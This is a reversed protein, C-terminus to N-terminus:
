RNMPPRKYLIDGPVLVEGCESCTVQPKMQKGCDVHVLIHPKGRKDALWKDGWMMMGVAVGFIQRGKETLRYEYRPPKECYLAKRFIECEVLSTLRNSLINPAIQLEQLFEDFRKGGFYAAALVMTSWRDGIIDVCQEFIYSNDAVKTPLRSRRQHRPPMKEDFGSGPGLVYRTNRIHVQGQCQDCTTLPHFTKGCNKHVLEGPLTTNEPMWQREWEWMLLSLPFLDRGMETLHYEFRMPRDQYLVKELCGYEVLKKLRNTLLSKAMGNRRQWDQFRRVGLFADRLIVLTWKDGILNLTRTVSSARISDSIKMDGPLMLAAFFYDIIEQELPQKFNTEKHLHCSYVM